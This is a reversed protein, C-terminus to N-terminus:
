TGGIGGRGMVLDRLSLQGELYVEERRAVRVALGLALACALGTSLVTTLGAIGVSKGAILSKFVLTTNVVPVFSLPLSLEVGPLISAMAPFIILLYFPTLYSQGEKYTRAPVALVMMVAGFFGALVTALGLTYLVSSVPLAIQRAFEPSLQVLLHGASLTMSLLNLGAATLGGLVVFLYKGLLVRSRPVPLLVTTEITRREREGVVVDIAAYFTGTGTMIILIMPLLLSLVFRGLDQTSATSVSEVEIVDYAEDGLGVAAMAARQRKKEFDDVVARARREAEKSLDDQSQYYLKIELPLFELPVGTGFGDRVADSSRPSVEVIADPGNESRLVLRAALEPESGELAGPWTNETRRSMSEGAFLLSDLGAGFGSDHYLVGATRREQRGQLFTQIQIMFFFLTPYLFLPVIILYIVTNKDRFGERVEKGVIRLLQKWAM